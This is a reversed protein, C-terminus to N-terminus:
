RSGRIPNPSAMAASTAAGTGDKKDAASDAVAECYGHLSLYAITRANPDVSKGVKGVGDKQAKKTYVFKSM